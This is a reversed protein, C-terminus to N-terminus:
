LSRALGLPTVTHDPFVTSLSGLGVHKVLLEGLVDRYDTTAALSDNTFRDAEALGPWTGYVQGGVVGGGLVWMTQGHGHDCGWTGNQLISRGFESVLAVTVRGFAPGLDDVFAGLGADLDSLQAQMDGWDVTGVNTHMDWGGIDITAMTLGVDAKIIRALDSMGQGFAGDPYGSGAPEDTRIQAALDISDLTRRAQDAVANDEAAYLSRIAAMAQTQLDDYGVIGYDELSDVVLAPAEGTLSLSIQSGIQVASLLATAGRAELARNMWGSVNMGTATGREVTDMAEFHSLTADPTGAALVPAFTGQDYLAKMRTLAPHLGFSRDLALTQSAPIGIGPRLDYYLPDATPVVISLTDWGGRLQIVVLTGRAPEGGAAFSYRSTVTQLGLAAVMAASGQLVRRRTFGARWPDPTPACDPCTLTPAPRGAPTPEASRLPLPRTTM